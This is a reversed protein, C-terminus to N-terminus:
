GAKENMAKDVVDIVSQVRVILDMHAEMQENQGSIGMSKILSDRREVLNKRAAAYNTKATGAREQDGPDNSM